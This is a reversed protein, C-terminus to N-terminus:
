GKGCKRKQLIKKVEFEDKGAIQTPPSPEPHQGHFAPDQYPVLKSAHFVLHILRFKVPMKLKFTVDSLREIIEFPGKYRPQLACETKQYDRLDLMVKDGAKFPVKQVSKDYYWKM